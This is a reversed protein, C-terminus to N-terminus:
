LSRGNVEEHSLNWSQAQVANEGADQMHATIYVLGVVSPDTNRARLLHVLIVRHLAPVSGNKEKSTTEKEKPKAESSHSSTRM